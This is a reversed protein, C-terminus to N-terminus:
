MTRVHPTLTLMTRPMALAGAIREGEGAFVPLRHQLRQVLVVTMSGGTSVECLNLLSGKHCSALLLHPTSGAMAMRVHQRRTFCPRKAWM